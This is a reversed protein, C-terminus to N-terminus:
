EDFLPKKVEPLKKNLREIVLETIDLKESASVVQRKWLVVNINQEARIEDIIVAAEEMVEKLGKQFALNYYNQAEKAEQQFVAVEQRYKEVAKKFIDEALTTQNKKLKEAQEKLKEEKAAITKMAETSKEKVTENVAKLATSEQMLKKQDIVAIGSEAASSMQALQLSFLLAFSVTFIIRKLM